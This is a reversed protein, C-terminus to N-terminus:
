SRTAQQFVEILKVKIDPAKLLDESKFSSSNGDTEIRMEVSRRTCLWLALISAAAAVSSSDLAFQVMDIGAGIDGPEAYRQATVFREDILGDSIFLRKLMALDDSSAGKITLDV